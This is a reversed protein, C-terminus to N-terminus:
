PHPATPYRSYYNQSGDCATGDQLYRPRTNQRSYTKTGTPYNEYLTTTYNTCQWIIPFTYYFSNGNACAYSTRINGDGMDWKCDPTPSYPDSTNWFSEGWNDPNPIWTGSSNKKWPNPIMWCGGALSQEYSTCTPTPTCAGSPCGNDFSSNYNPDTSTPPPAPPPPLSGVAGLVGGNRGCAPDGGFNVVAPPIITLQKCITSGSEIGFNPFPGNFDEGALNVRVQLRQLVDNARGTSDIQVQAGKIDVPNSCNPSCITVTASKYLAMLRLYIKKSNIGTIEAKCHRPNAADTVKSCKTAIIPGQIGAGSAQTFHVSGGSRAAPNPSQQQPVFYATATGNILDDRKIVGSPEKVVDV